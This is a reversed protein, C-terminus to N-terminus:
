PLISAFVSASTKAMSKRANIIEAMGLSLFMDISERWLKPNDGSHGFPPFDDDVEEALFSDVDAELM